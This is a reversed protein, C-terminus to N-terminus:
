KHSCIYVLAIDNVGLIIRPCIWFKGAVLEDPELGLALVLLAIEGIDLTLATEDAGPCIVKVHIPPTPDPM